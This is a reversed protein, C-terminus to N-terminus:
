KNYQVCAAASPSCGPNLRKIYGKKVMKSLIEGVHKETNYYFRIKECVQKKTIIKEPSDNIM